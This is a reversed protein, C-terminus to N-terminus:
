LAPSKNRRDSSLVVDVVGPLGLGVPILSYGDTKNGGVNYIISQGAQKGGKM